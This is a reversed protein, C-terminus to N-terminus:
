RTQFSHFFFSTFSGGKWSSGDDGHCHWLMALQNGSPRVLKSVKPSRAVQQRHRVYKDPSRRRRWFTALLDGSPRLILKVSHVSAWVSRSDKMYAETGEKGEGHKWTM